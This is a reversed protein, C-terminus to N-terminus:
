SSYTEYTYINMIFPYDLLPHVQISGQTEYCVNEAYFYETLSNIIEELVL